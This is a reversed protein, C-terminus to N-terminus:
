SEVDAVALVVELGVPFGLLAARWVGMARAVLDTAHTAQKVM